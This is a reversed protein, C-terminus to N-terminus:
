IMCLGKNFCFNAASYKKGAQFLREGKELQTLMQENHNQTEQNKYCLYISDLDLHRDDSEHKKLYEFDKDTVILAAM